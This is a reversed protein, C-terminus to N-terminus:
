RTCDRIFVEHFHFCDLEVTETQQMSPTKISSMDVYIQFYPRKSDYHMYPKDVIHNVTAIKKFNFAGYGNFM